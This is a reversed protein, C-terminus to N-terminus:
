AQRHPPVVPLEKAWSGQRAYAAMHKAQEAGKAKSRGKIGAKGRFADAKPQNREDGVEGDGGEADSQKQGQACVTERPATSRGGLLDLPGAPMPVCGDRPM